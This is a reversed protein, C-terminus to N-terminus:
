RTAGVTFLIHVKAGGLRSKELHLEGHYHDVIERAIALGIGQGEVRQDARIGREFVRERIDAGVGEGDDEVLIEVGQIRDQDSSVPKAGIHVTSVSWKYANDITNGLLEYLDSRDGYFRTDEAIEVKTTVRKGRHVKDMSDLIKQIVPRLDVLRHVISARSSAARKLQYEVIDTMRDVYQNMEKLEGQSRGETMGRLVALLTKLSHALDGLTNRYREINKRENAIFLNIRESLEVIEQPYIGEIRTQKATEILDIEDRVRGLPLLSWRLAVMQLILLFVGVLGLWLAIERRHENVSDAFHSSSEVLVLSFEYETGEENEWSVSFRYRFPSSLRDTEQFFHESGTPSIEFDNLDSGLASPSQWLIRGHGDIITASLGSNLVSLRAEPLQAPIVIQGSRGVEIVSLLAFTQTRLQNKLSVKASSIFARDLAVGALGLFTILVIAGTILLRKRLSLTSM